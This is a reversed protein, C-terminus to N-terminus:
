QRVNKLVVFFTVKNRIETRVIRPHVEENQSEIWATYPSAVYFSLMKNVCSCENTWVVYIIAKGNVLVLWESNKNPGKCWWWLEWKNSIMEIWLIIIVYKRNSNRSSNTEISGISEFLDELDSIAYPRLLTLNEGIRHFRINLIQWYEQINKLM